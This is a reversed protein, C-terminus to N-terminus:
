GSPSGEETDNPLMVLEWDFPSSLPNDADGAESAKGMHFELAERDALKELHGRVRDPVILVVVEVRHAGPGLLAAPLRVRAALTQPRAVSVWRPPQIRIASREGRVILRFKPLVSDVAHLFRIRVELDFEARASLYFGEHGDAPVLRTHLIEAYEKARSLSGQRQDYDADTEPEERPFEGASVEWDDAAKLRAGCASCRLFHKQVKELVTGGCRPCPEGPGVEGDVFQVWLYEYEGSSDRTTVATKGLVTAAAQASRVVPKPDGAYHKGRKLRRPRGDAWKRWDREETAGDSSTLNAAEM